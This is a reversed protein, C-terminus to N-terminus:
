EAIVSLGSSYVLRRGTRRSSSCTLVCFGRGAMQAYLKLARRSAFYTTSLRSLFHILVNPTMPDRCSVRLWLTVHEFGSPLCLPSTIYPCELISMIDDRASLPFASSAKGLISVVFRKVAWLRAETGGDWRRRIM